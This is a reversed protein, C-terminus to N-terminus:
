INTYGTWCLSSSSTHMKNPTALWTPLPSCTVLNTLASMFTWPSPGVKWVSYLLMHTSIQDTEANYANSVFYLSTSALTNRLVLVSKFIDNLVCALCLVHQNTVICCATLGCIKLGQWDGAGEARIHERPVEDDVDGDDYAITYSSGSVARVMGPFYKRGGGYLAEVRQAM